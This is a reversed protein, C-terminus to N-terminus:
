HTGCINSAKLLRSCRCSRCFPEIVVVVDLSALQLYLVEVNCRVEIWITSAFDRLQLSKLLLGSPGIQLHFLLTYGSSRGKCNPRQNLRVLNPHAALVLGAAERRRFLVKRALLLDEILGFVFKQLTVRQAM